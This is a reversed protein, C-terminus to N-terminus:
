IPTLHKSSLFMGDSWHWASFFIEQFNSLIKKKDKQLM